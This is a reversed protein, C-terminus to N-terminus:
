ECHRKIIKYVTPRDWLNAGNKTKIGQENLWKTLTGYTAGQARMALLESIIKLEGKHPAVKGDRVKEGFAIQGRKFHTPIYNRLPIDFELLAQTITSRACGVSKAIQSM